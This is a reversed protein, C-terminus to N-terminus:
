RLVLTYYELDGKVLINVYILGTNEIGSNVIKRVDLRLVKEQWPILKTMLKTM